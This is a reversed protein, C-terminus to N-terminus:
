DIIARARALYGSLENLLAKADKLDATDFGETFWNYIEALMARAEDRRDTDRLLRALSTTARLEFLKAGIKRAIDVSERFDAEAAESQHLRLRLEGRIKIADPRFCLETPNAQLAEEVTALAELVKGGQAQAAAKYGLHLTWFIRAKTEVWSRLASDVLALGETVNGLLAESVGLFITSGSGIQRYGHEESLDIAVAAAGKANAFERLLLHLVAAICHTHALEFPSKLDNAGDIAQRMRDRAADPFGRAWATLSGYCFGAGLVAPHDKGAAEFMGAGSIFHEEAGGLDGRFYCNAVLYAYACGLLAPSGDRRALGLTQNAVVGAAAFDGTNFVSNFTGVMRSVLQALDDRKEALALARQTAAAAEPANFGQTLQLVQVFRNMLELERGDRISSEPLTRLITLAQRFGEAAEKFANREFATDAATRWAAIALETEGADTWHKAIVEPQAEAVAAFRETIMQAVRRHLERRRSKLLAEYAADQILAHKFQYTADPAIGRAYILETDVLRELASQLETESIAAVAQLLGYSFERGIVAAVQAVEKAPGLRDLRAALSDQLTAPIQRVQSRGEGDLILRTLEEAFLPVGDTRKVVADILDQALAARAVVSAVMERTHRDNLRNLTIQAHHARMAWPARFEPRATYLLMLPATAAQEVLMQTLELTSPDVWHLDEMAMVMPQVRSVHLVWGALNALLRKRKQEPAFLLPPYKDPIPLSLMEAILPMAEGVKLGARELRLELQTLREEPSEDGRWGLGQDLIQRVVHFPTSQFLQEGACEVWVHPDDRIHARFEEVLRSKGIGPEGMVLAVQGQGERAREWRSLLLRMDDDRGVFPTQMRAAPRQTLRRAVTSQTARYLQIPREIGKLQHAGRDEVVFLGSVLEHVASTIVVSDPEAASQVRSAVNPADGFVDAGEGGGRGMVVSGTEIGVRVSLKVNHEVTLRGNMADVDDVLALGARVAREADDEHAEPWGFYVMLGDGLYKAVHGGFRTVAAAATRQYQAAIERWDEADLHASIETSGVLDSFLVTLHRREGDSATGAGSAASSVRTEATPQSTSSSSPSQTTTGTATLAAGCDGCFRKGPANDASCQPCRNEMMAGCDGCFKKGEPNEAGCKSCRM